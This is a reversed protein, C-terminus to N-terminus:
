QDELSIYLFPYGESALFLKTLEVHELVFPDGFVVAFVQMANTVIYLM